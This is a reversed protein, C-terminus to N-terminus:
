SRRRQPTAPIDRRGRIARSTGARLYSDFVLSGPNTYHVWRRRILNFAILSEAKTQGDLTRLMGTLAATVARNFNGGVRLAREALLTGLFNSCLDEPSFSSNHGGPRSQDYTMIEYGISDDFAISRAVKMWELGPVTSTLTAEGHTTTIVTGSAGCVEVIKLLIFRTQDCLDRVHGLDVFGAKGTYVQGVQERISGPTFGSRQNHIGLRAPDGLNEDSILPLKSSALICCSRM